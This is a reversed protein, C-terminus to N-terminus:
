KKKSKEYEQIAEIVSQKDLLFGYLGKSSIMQIIGTYEFKKNLVPGGSFGHEIGLVVTYYALDITTKGDILMKYVSKGSVPRELCLPFENLNSLFIVNGCMYVNDQKINFDGFGPVITEESIKDEDEKKIELLAVDREDDALLLKTKYINKKYDMFIYYPEYKEPMYSRVVHAVTIFYKKTKYLVIAGSGRGGARMVTNDVPNFKYTQGFVLYIKQLYPNGINFYVKHELIEYDASARAVLFLFCFSAALLACFRIKM